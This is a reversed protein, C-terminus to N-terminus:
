GWGAARCPAFLVFHDGGREHRGAANGRTPTVVALRQHEVHLGVRAAVADGCLFPGRSGSARAAAPSDLRQKTWNAM